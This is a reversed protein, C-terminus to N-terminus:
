TSVFAIRGTLNQAQVPDLGTFKREPLPTAKADGKQDATAASVGGGGGGSGGGGGGGSGVAGGAAGGM